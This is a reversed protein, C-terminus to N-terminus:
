LLWCYIYWYYLIIWFYDFLYYPEEIGSKNVFKFIYEGYTNNIKTSIEYFIQRLEDTDRAEKIYKAIGPCEEIRYIKFQHDYNTTYIHVPYLNNGEDIIKNCLDQIKKNILESKNFNSIIGKEIQKQQLNCIGQLISFAQYYQGILM